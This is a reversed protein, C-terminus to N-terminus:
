PRALLYGAEGGVYGGTTQRIWLRLATAVAAAIAGHRGGPPMAEIVERRVLERHAGSDPLRWFERATMIRRTVLSM